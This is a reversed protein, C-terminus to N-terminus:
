VVAQSEQSLGRSGMLKSIGKCSTIALEKAKCELEVDIEIDGLDPMPQYIYDAHKTKNANPDEFQKASSSYHCLQTVSDPWTSNALRAADSIDLNGPHCDWHHLDFTIPTGIRQYVKYLDETAYLSAKDDNEIVLRSRVSEDAKEVEKCFRDIVVDHSPKGSGIHINIAADPTHPLGLADMLRGYNNMEKHTNEVVEAKDSGYKMFQSPHVTIRMGNQIAYQGCQRLIVEMEDWSDLERIDYHTTKNFMSGIRFLRIDHELNWELISMLDKCNQLCRQNLKDWGQQSSLEKISSITRTIKIGEKQLTKNICCYGIRNIKM